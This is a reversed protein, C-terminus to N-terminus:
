REGPLLLEGRGVLVATGGVKVEVIQGSKETINIHIRSPRRMAVGQLSVIRHTADGSVQRHRVLYCGLPGSAGGTAPDEVVGFEPAFMRSYATPPADARRISGAGGSGGWTGVAFLFIPLDLGTAAKLRRFGVADSIARDVTAADRLPVYLFPVGCSIQRIPLDPVLDGESLGLATAVDTRAMVPPGFEPAGQTMWAFSLGGSNWQLDV